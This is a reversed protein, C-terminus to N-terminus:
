GHSGVGSWSLDDGLFDGEDRDAPGDGSGKDM